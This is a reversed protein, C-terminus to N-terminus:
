LNIFQKKLFRKINAMNNKTYQYTLLGSLVFFTGIITNRTIEENNITNGLLLALVPTILPILMVSTASLNKLIYFYMVFGAFSGFIGLYVISYLATTSPMVPVTNSQSFWLIAFVPMALLLSGANISVASVQSNFRKILVTSLGYLLVAVCIGVVGKWGENDVQLEDLFIIILGVIALAIGLLKQPSLFREKLIPIAFLGAVIPSLGYLVSMLGSAIYQASWYTTLMAGCVGLTSAAYTALADKSFSIRQNVFALFFLSLFLGIVMRMILPLLIDGDVVSFKIGLPTTSWILIVSIYALLVRM